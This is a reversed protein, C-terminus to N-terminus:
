PAEWLLRSNPDFLLLSSEPYTTVKGDPTTIQSVGLSARGKGNDDYLQLAPGDKSVGLRFRDKENEDCLGLVPGDKSVALGARFEGNEDYLSLGPGEKSISLIVLPEGNEDYLRLGPGDKLVSFCARSEGNEDLLNFRNAEIVKEGNGVQSTAAAAALALLLTVGTLLLRNCRRARALGTELKKLREEVTM